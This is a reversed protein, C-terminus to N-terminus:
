KECRKWEDDLTDDKKRELNADYQRWSFMSSTELKRGKLRGLVPRILVNDELFELEDAFAVHSEVAVVHGWAASLLFITRRIM